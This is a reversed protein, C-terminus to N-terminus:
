APRLTGVTVHPWSLGAFNLLVRQTYQLQTIKKGARDTAHQLWYTVSVDPTDANANAPDAGQLFAINDVGGGVNPGPALKPSSAVSIATVSQFTLGANAELLFINPNSLQEQTLGAVRSLPTRSAGAFPLKEEDFHVLGTQGDDPSGITFPVISSVPILSNMKAADAAAKAEGQLNITTGHPISGMRAVSEPENPITTSPVHVWVGPEFHQDSNDFRDAIEQTYAAGGLKIDDQKFGRNAIGSGSIDIFSLTENTFMLQLFHDTTGHHPRWLLNWGHGQWKRTPKAAPTAGVFDRLLGLLDAPADSTLNRARPAFHQYAFNTEIPMAEEM